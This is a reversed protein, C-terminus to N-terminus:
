TKKEGGKAGATETSRKILTDNKLTRLVSFPGTVIEDDAKVGSLVEIDTDGTIGTEVPVFKTKM